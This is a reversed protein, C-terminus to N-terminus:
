LNSGQLQKLLGADLQSAISLIVSMCNSSLGSM